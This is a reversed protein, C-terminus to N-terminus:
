KEHVLEAHRQSVPPGRRCRHAVPQTTSSRYDSEPSISRATPSIPRLQGGGRSRHNRLQQDRDVDDRDRNLLHFGLNIYFRAAARLEQVDDLTEIREVSGWLLDYPDFGAEIYNWWMYEIGDRRLDERFNTALRRRWTDLRKQDSRSLTEDQAQAALLDLITRTRRGV